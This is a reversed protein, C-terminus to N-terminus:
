NCSGTKSTVGGNPNVVINSNTSMNRIEQGLRGPSHLWLTYTCNVNTGCPVSMFRTLYQPISVGASNCVSFAADTCNYNQLSYNSYQWNIATNVANTFQSSNVTYTVSVDYPTSSNDRIVSPVDLILSTPGNNQYFGVSRSVQTNTNNDIKIFQVFTHGVDGGYTSPSSSGVVPQDVCIAIKYTYNGSNNTMCNLENNIDIIPKNDTTGFNLSSYTLVYSSNASNYSGGGGNYYDNSSFTIGGGSDEACYVPISHSYHIDCINIAPTRVEVFVPIQGCPVNAIGKIRSNKNRNEEGIILDSVFKGKEYEFGKLFEGRLNRVWIYGSFSYNDTRKKTFFTDDPISTSLEAVIRGDKDKYMMLNTLESIGLKRENKDFKRVDKANAIRPLYNDKFIVPIILTKGISLDFEKADEWIPIPPAFVSDNGNIRTKNSFKVLEDSYFKKAENVSLTNPLKNIKEPLLTLVNKENCGLIAIMLLFITITKQSIKQM